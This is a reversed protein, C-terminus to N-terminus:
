SCSGKASSKMQLLKLQYIVHTKHEILQQRAVTPLCQIPDETQMLQCGCLSLFLSHLLSLYVDIRNAVSM